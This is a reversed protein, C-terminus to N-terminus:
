PVSPICANNSAWMGVNGDAVQHNRESSVPKIYIYVTATM